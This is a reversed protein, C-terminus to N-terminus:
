EKVLIGNAFWTKNNDLFELNYMDVYENTEELSTIKLKKGKDDVCYDGVELQKLNMSSWTPAGEKEGTILKDTLDYSAWGKGDVYFPHAPSFENKTGDEYTAIIKQYNSLIEPLPLVKDTGFEKTSVNYSLIEDGEKINEINKYTGNAMTVKTGKVFCTTEWNPESSNSNGGGRYFDLSKPKFDTKQAERKAMPTPFVQMQGSITTTWDGGTTVEQKEGMVIFHINKDRYHRPLRSEDVRFLQGM